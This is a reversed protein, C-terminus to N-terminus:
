GFMGDNGLAGWSADPLPNWAGLDLQNILMGVEETSRVAQWLYCLADARDPSRGIRQKVSRVDKKGGSDKPTIAFKFGDHGVPEREPAALEERLKADPPLAFPIEAFTDVPDLRKAMLAYVEARLNAYRQPDVLATANGRNELVQVGRDTLHDAVGKGPGIVDIAVPFAGTELSIGYRDEAVDLVWRATDSTKAYHKGLLARCGYKGGAALITEDGTISSSVDLGFAVVPILKDLMCTCKLLNPAGCEPCRVAEREMDFRDVVQKTSPFKRFCAEWYAIHRSFWSPLFLQTEPDEEPFMARAFVRVRFPDPDACMSIFKDYCLQGPIIPKVKDYDEDPITDGQDYHRSGIDIGGLPGVPKELCKKRVNMCNAGDVTILRRLGQQSKITQTTDPDINGFADRFAGALTRPNGLVIMKKAQTFAIKYRGDDIATGEDFIFLTHEGHFGAFSEEDAPNVLHIKHIESDRISEQLIEGKPRYTARKAWRCIEDFMVQKAHEMSSSTVRIKADPWIDFFMVAAMAAATSKGTATAGKSWCSAIEKSSICFLIDWQHVDLIVGPWQFEVYKQPDGARAADVAELYRLHREIEEQSM